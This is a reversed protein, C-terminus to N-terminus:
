PQRRTRRSGGALRAARVTRRREAAKILDTHREKALAQAYAPHFMESVEVLLM